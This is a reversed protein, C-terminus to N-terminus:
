QLRLSPLDEKEILEEEHYPNSDEIVQGDLLKIIRTSYQSALIDNHTVM